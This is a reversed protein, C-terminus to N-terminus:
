AEANMRAATKQLPGQEGLALTLWGGLPNRAQLAATGDELLVVRYRLQLQRHLQNNASEVSSKTRPSPPAYTSMCRAIAAAVPAPAPHTTM